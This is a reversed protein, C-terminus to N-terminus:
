CGGSDGCNWNVLVGGDGSDVVGEQLVESNRGGYTGVATVERYSM